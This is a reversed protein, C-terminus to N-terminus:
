SAAGGRELWAACEATVTAALKAEYLALDDDRFVGRWRGGTGKNLFSRHGDRFVKAQHPLLAGGDRQMARFEAAAVVEALLGDSLPIDLFAAIRVVEGALDGKLDSYHVM